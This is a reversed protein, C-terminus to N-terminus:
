SCQWTFSIDDLGARSSLSSRALWYLTGVDGWMMDSNYDTDVQLLLNWELGEATHADDGYEIPGDLAAQAVEFEVPGQVPDAWGGIQHRPGDDHLAWISETFPEANVEHDLWERTGEGPSRFERELM